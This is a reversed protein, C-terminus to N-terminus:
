NGPALRFRFEYEKLRSRDDDELVGENCLRKALDLADM